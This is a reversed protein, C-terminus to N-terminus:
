YSTAPMQYAANSYSRQLEERVAIGTSRPDKSGDVNIQIENTQNATGGAGNPQNSPPMAAASAISDLPNVTVAADGGGLLNKLWDPVLGTIKSIASSITDTISDWVSSAWAGVAKFADILALIPGDILEGIAEGWERLVTQGGRFTTIIEDMVLIFAAVIAIIAALPWLVAWIAAALATLGGAFVLSAAAGLGMAIALASVVAALALVGSAVIGLVIALYGLFIRMVQAWYSGSTLWKVMVALPKVLKSLINIVLALAPALASVLQDRVSALRSSLDRWAYALEQTSKISEQSQVFAESTQDIERRFSAFLDRGVNLREAMARGIALQDNSLLRIKQRLQEYVVLPDQTPDIGFFAFPSLDGEGLALASQKQQLGDLFTGVEQASSGTLDAQRQFRQLQDTAMGTATGFNTMEIAANISRSILVVLAVSVATIAVALKNLETSLRKVATVWPVVKAPTPVAPVSPTPTAPVGAPVALPNPANTPSMPAVPQGGGGQGAGNLANVAALAQKAQATVNKLMSELAALQDLNEIKIGISILLQSITM